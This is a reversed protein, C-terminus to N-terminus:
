ISNYNPKRIDWIFVSGNESGSAFENRMSMSPNFQCDTVKEDADHKFTSMAKCINTRIDILKITGDQSGSILLNPENPHFNIKNITRENFRFVNFETSIV